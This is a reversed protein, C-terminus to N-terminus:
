KRGHLFRYPGISREWALKGTELDIARLRRPITTEPGKRPAEVVAPARMGLATMATTGPEDAFKSLLKGTETSFAWWVPESPPAPKRAPGKYVLATRGDPSVEGRLDTGSLLAIEPLRKGATLDWRKLAVTHEAGEGRVPTAIAHRDSVQPVKEWKGDAWSSRVAEKEADPPLKVRPQAPAKDPALLEVDGSELDIRAVGDASRSAYLEQEPTPVPGHAYWGRASWGLWLEGEVVRAGFRFSRGHNLSVSVWDPFTVVASSFLRKGTELDLGVVRVANAKGKEPAEAFLRRAHIALPKRAEASSWLAKGTTLDFADIGDKENTAFGLRGTGDALGWPM